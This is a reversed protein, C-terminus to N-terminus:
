RSRRAPDDRPRAPRVLAADGALRPERLRHHDPVVARHVPQGLDGAAGRRPQGAPRDRRRRRLQAPVAGATVGLVSILMLQLQPDTLRLAWCGGRRCGCCSTPSRRCCSSRSRWSASGARRPRRRPRRGALHRQDLADGDRPLARRLRQRRRPDPRAGARRDPRRLGARDGQLDAPHARDGGRHHRQARRAPGAAGAQGIEFGGLNLPALIAFATVLVMLGGMWGVLARWLHLPESLLQPRDFLTAGTTTLCSLM